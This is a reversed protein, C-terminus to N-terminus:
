RNAGDAVRLGPAVSTRAARAWNPQRPNGPRTLVSQLASLHAAKRIAGKTSVGQVLLKRWLAQDHANRLEPVRGQSAVSALLNFFTQEAIRECWYLSSGCFLRLTYPNQRALQWVFGLGASVVTHLDNCGTVSFLDRSAADDLVKNWYRDDQERFSLLLFPVASLREAQRETLDTLRGVLEASLHALGLHSRVDRRLISLYARNLSAVNEYDTAQPGDFAM